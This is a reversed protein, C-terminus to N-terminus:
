PRSRAAPSHTTIGAAQAPTNAQKIARTQPWDCICTPLRSTTTSTSDSSSRAVRSAASSRPESNAAPQRHAVRSVMTSHRM